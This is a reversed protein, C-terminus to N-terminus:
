NKKASLLCLNVVSDCLQCPKFLGKLDDLRIKWKIVEM